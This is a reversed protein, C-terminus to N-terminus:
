LNILLELINQMIKMDEPTAIAVLLIAKETGFAEYAWTRISRMFKVAAKGNNAILISHIPHKGGLTKCFEDVVRPTLRIHLFQVVSLLM